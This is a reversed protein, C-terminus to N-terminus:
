FLKNLIAILKNIAAIKAKEADAASSSTTPSSTTTEVTVNLAETILQSGTAIYDQVMDLLNNLLQSDSYGNQALTTLKSFAAKENETLKTTDVNISNLIKALLAIAKSNAASLKSVDGTVEIIKNGIRWNITDIVIKRFEDVDTPIRWIIQGTAPDITREEFNEYILDGIKIIKIM